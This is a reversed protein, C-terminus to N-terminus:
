QLGTFPINDRQYVYESNSRDYFLINAEAAPVMGLSKTAVEYIHNFDRTYTVEREALTNETQLTHLQRELVETERIRLEVDTKLHIYQFCSLLAFMVAMMLATMYPLEVLLPHRERELYIIGSEENVKIVYPKAKRKKLAYGGTERAAIM